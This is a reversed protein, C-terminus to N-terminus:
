RHSIRRHSTYQVILSWHFLQSPLPHVFETLKAKSISLLYKLQTNVSKVTQQTCFVVYACSFCEKTKKVLVSGAPGSILLSQRFSGDSFISNNGGSIREPVSDGTSKRLGGQKLKRSRLGVVTIITALLQDSHLFQFTNTTSHVYRTTIAILCSHWMPLKTTYGCYCKTYRIFWALIWCYDHIDIFLLDNILEVQKRVIFWRWNVAIQLRNNGWRRITDYKLKKGDWKIEIPYININFNSCNCETRV